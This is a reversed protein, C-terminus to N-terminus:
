VLAEILLPTEIESLEPDDKKLEYLVSYFSGLISDLEDQRAQKREPHSNVTNQALRRNRELVNWMANRVDMFDARTM